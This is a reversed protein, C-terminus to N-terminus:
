PAGFSTPIRARLSPDQKVAQAVQKKALKTNGLDDNLLGVNFLTYTDNPKIKLIDDYAILAAAPNTPTEVAAVNFLAPLYHDDTKISQDYYGIAIPLDSLNTYIVGLNYLAYTTLHLSNSPNNAIVQYFDHKATSFDGAKEAAVGNRMIQSISIGRDWKFYAFVGAGALLVVVIALATWRKATM